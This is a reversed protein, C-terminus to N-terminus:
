FECVRGDGDTDDYWDYEPDVGRQYNGFGADNAEYCWDYQPDTAGGSSVLTRPQAAVTQQRLQSKTRAVAAAVARRQSVRAARKVRRVEGRAQNLQRKADELEAAADALKSDAAAQESEVADDVADQVADDVAADIRTQAQTETIGAAATTASGSGGGMMAGLLLGAFGAGAVQVRRRRFFPPKDIFYGPYQEVPPLSQQDM